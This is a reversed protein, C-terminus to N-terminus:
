REIKLFWDYFKQKNEIQLVRGDEIPNLISKMTTNTLFIILNDLFSRKIEVLKRTSNTLDTVLKIIKKAQKRATNTMHKVGTIEAMDDLEKKATPWEYPKSKLVKGVYGSWEYLVLHEGKKKMDYKKGRMDSVMETFMKTTLPDRLIQNVWINQVNPTIARIEHANWGEGLNTWVTINRIDDMRAKKILTIKFKMNNLMYEKTFDEFETFKKNSLKVDFVVGDPSKASLKSYIGKGKAWVITGELLSRIAWIRHQGDIVLYKYKKNLLKTLYRITTECNEYEDTGDDYDAQLNKTDELVADVDVIVMTSIEGFGDFCASFFQSCQQENWPNLRRQYYEEDSYILSLIKRMDELTASVSESKILPEHIIQSKENNM